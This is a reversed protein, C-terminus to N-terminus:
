FGRNRLGATVPKAAPRRGQEPAPQTRRKPQNVLDMVMYRLADPYHDDVNKTEADEPDRKSRPLSALDRIVNVCSDYVVLRPHGECDEVGCSGDCERPRLLADILAWGARRDSNSKRLAGGFEQFYDYAISGKDPRDDGSPLKAGSRGTRNWMSRDANVPVPRTPTREGEVELGKIIAAQEAATKDTGGTERYIVVTGDPMLAGWVAAFPDAVGYDVGVARPHELIDLPYEEPTVVHLHRRWQPFRVSGLLIDWDGDIMARRMVPDLNKLQKLYDAENIHPNDTLRSPVYVRVSGHQTRFRTFAPAPEIFRNKVWAHGVGGPNASAMARPKLGLEDMRRKVGGTARLRSLLFTYQWRTFHTLEDVLLLQLEAGQWKLVDDDYLAHGLHLESGNGFYFIGETKNFHASPERVQIRNKIEHLEGHTRRLLLATAGDVTKCLRLGAAILVDTKGGGASGGFLLEDVDYALALRQKETPVFPEHTVSAPLADAATATM